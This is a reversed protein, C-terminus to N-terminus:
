EGDQLLLEPRHQLEAQMLLLGSLRAAESNTNGSTHNTIHRMM